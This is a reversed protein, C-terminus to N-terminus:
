RALNEMWLMKLDFGQRAESLLWSYITAGAILSNFIMAFYQFQQLKFFKLEYIRVKLTKSIFLAYFVNYINKIIFCFVVNM